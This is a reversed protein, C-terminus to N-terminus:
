SSLRGWKRAVKAATNSKAAPYRSVLAKATAPRATIPGQIAQSYRGKRLPSLRRYPNNHSPEGM